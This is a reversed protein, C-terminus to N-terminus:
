KCIQYSIHTLYSIPVNSAFVSRLNSDVYHRIGKIEAHRDRAILLDLDDLSEAVPNVHLGLVVFFSPHARHEQALDPLFDIVLTLHNQAM